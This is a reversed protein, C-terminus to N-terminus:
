TECRRLRNTRTRGVGQPHVGQYGLFLVVSLPFRVRRAQCRGNLSHHLPYDAWSAELGAIIKASRCPESIPVRATAARPSERRDCCGVEVVPASRWVRCRRLIRQRGIAASRCRVLGAVREPTRRGNAPCGQQRTSPRQQGEITLTDADQLSLTATHGFRPISSFERDEDLPKIAALIHM